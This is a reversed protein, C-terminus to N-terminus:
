QNLVSLQPCERLSIVKSFHLFGDSRNRMDIVLWENEEPDYSTINRNWLEEFEEVTMSDHVVKLLYHKINHYAELGVLKQPLKMTIHWICWRHITKLFVIEIAQRMAQCQDMIIAKPAIGCMSQLWQKFIWVFSDTDECSLLGCGFLIFEGHHNIGIFLAFSMEYKNTLYTTDFTIV